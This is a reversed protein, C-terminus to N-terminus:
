KMNGKGPIITLVSGTKNFMNLTVHRRVGVCLRKEKGENQEEKWGGGEEVGGGGGWKKDEEKKTVHTGLM